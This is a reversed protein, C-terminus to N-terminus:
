MQAELTFEIYDSDLLIGDTDFLSFFTLTQPLDKLYVGFYLTGTVGNSTFEMQEANLENIDSITYSHEWSDHDGGVLHKYGQVKVYATDDSYVLIGVKGIYVTGTTDDIKPAGVYGEAVEYLYGQITTVGSSSNDNTNTNTNDTGSGGGCSAFILILALTCLLLKM